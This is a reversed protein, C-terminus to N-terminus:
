KVNQISESDQYLLLNGIPFDTFRTLTDTKIGCQVLGICGWLLAWTACQLAEHWPSPQIDELGNGTIPRYDRVGLSSNWKHSWQSGHTRKTDKMFLAWINFDCVCVMNGKMVPCIDSSDKSISSFNLCLDTRIFHLQATINKLGIYQNNMYAELYIKLLHGNHFKLWFSHSVRVFTLDTQHEQLTYHLFNQKM